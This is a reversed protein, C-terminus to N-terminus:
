QTQVASSVPTDAAECNQHISRVQGDDSHTMAGVFVRNHFNFVCVSMDKRYYQAPIASMAETAPATTCSLYPDPMVEKEHLANFRVSVYASTANRLDDPLM